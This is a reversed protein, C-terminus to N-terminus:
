GLLDGYNANLLINLTKPSFISGELEIFLIIQSVYKKLFYKLASNM